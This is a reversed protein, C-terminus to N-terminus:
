RLCSRAYRVESGDHDAAGGAAARRKAQVHGREGSVEPSRGCECRMVASWRFSRRCRGRVKTCDGRVVCRGSSRLHWLHSLVPISDDGVADAPDCALLAKVAALPLRLQRLMVVLHAEDLQATGYYRYCSAQSRHQDRGRQSGRRRLTLCAHPDCEIVTKHIFGAQELELARGDAGGFLELCTLSKV